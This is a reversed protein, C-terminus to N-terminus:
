RYKYTSTIVKRNLGSEIYTRGDLFKVITGIMISKAILISM